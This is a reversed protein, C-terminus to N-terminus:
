LQGLVDRLSEPFPCLAILMLFLMGLGLASRVNNPETVDDQCSYDAERQLFVCVLGWFLLLPSNGIISALGQLILTLSTVISAVRRGFLSQVIRGGDLRGIPILQLANVIVGSFGVVTLPHVAFTAQERLGSPLILDAISGMLLSARFLGGPIQPWWDALAGTNTLVMGSVLAILSLGIGAVPGAVAVDFLQSRNKPYSGLPTITGYLGIQLSPLFYPLGLKVKHYAAAIRHGIEHSTAIAFAGVSIPLTFWTEDINGQALQQIFEPSVGFIGVGYSFTTFLTAVLAAGALVYSGTSTKNPEAVDAPIAVVCPRTDESAPDILLFLALRKSVGSTEANQLIDQMAEAPDMRLNGKFVVRSDFPSREVQTVYFNKMTLVNEKMLTIDGESVTFGRMNMNELLRSMEKIMPANSGIGSIGNKFKELGNGNEVKKDGPAEVPKKDAADDKVVSVGDKMRSHEEKMRSHEEKGMRLKMLELRKKEADLSKREFDLMAKKAELELREIELRREESIGGSKKVEGDTANGVVDHAAEKGKVVGDNNEVGESSPSSTSDTEVSSCYVRPRM